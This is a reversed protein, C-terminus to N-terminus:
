EKIWKLAEPYQGDEFYRIEGSLLKETMKMLLIKRMPPNVYALKKPKSGMEFISKLNQEAAEETWGKYDPDYCVILNFFGQTEVRKKIEQHYYDDFDQAIVQGSLRLCLTTENSDPLITVSSM